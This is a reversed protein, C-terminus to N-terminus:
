RVSFTKLALALVRTDGNDPKRADPLDFKIINTGNKILSPSFRIAIKEDWSNLEGSYIEKENLSITVRQKGLSGAQIIIEGEFKDIVNNALFVISSAKGSSWRHTLEADSWNIFVISESTHALTDGPKITSLLHSIAYQVSREEHGKKSAMFQPYNWDFLYEPYKDINPNANWAMTYGNFLGQYTNVYVAFVSALTLVGISLKNTVGKTTTPWTYLTLLFLGPIIDTMFRPGFSWGAWWQPFRSVFILHLLPWALGMLMWSKKIGWDKESAHFCFWAALIFPSYILLGRAPSLLNGYLAKSFHGESLREPLYYDPLAQGFEHMSFAVFAGLLVTLLIASKIAVLRNYTFLYLLVFPSLLAMTPRCLYAAFLLLSIVPWIQFENDKTAKIASYIGILAFLTAFNQSWLATGSTSALSTGFWFISAALISNITGIFIRALKILFLLTLSSTIAAIVMQIAPESQQMNFGFGKALAVFPLSAIPTGLPFYYYFHGNKNHIHREYGRLEGYHDLKVTQHTLISETVLLTGKPDSGTNRNHSFTVILSVIAMVVLTAITSKKM